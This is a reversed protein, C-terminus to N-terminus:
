IGLSFLGLLAGGLFGAVVAQGTRSFVGGVISRKRRIEVKTVRGLSANFADERGPLLLSLTDRSLGLLTGEVRLGGSHTM